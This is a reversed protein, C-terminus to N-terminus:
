YRRQAFGGPTMGSLRVCDRTLHSQDAYGLDAALRALDVEGSAVAPAQSVFRRFRLVRDLTKPGYGVAGHFRRRLQRDSIGLADALSDVRSGAFGLRRTAALVLPDPGADRLRSSVLGELHGFVAEEGDDSIREALVAAVRGLVDELPHREDLVESAPLGLVAGAVGPRLRLGLIRQGASLRTPNASRDPGAIVLEGNRWILDVCGDPLVLTTSPSGEPVVRLWRCAALGHLEPSPALERYLSM